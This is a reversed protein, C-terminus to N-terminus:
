RGFQITRPTKPLLLQSYDRLCMSSRAMLSSLVQAILLIQEQYIGIGYTPQLIPELDKHAYKVEELGHKRKIFNSIWEMPGPRYLAVMATIDGFETPKLEKLYRRMGASELQFVGTTDGHQLLAFTKKDNLPINAIDLRKGKTREIIILTTEIVTLNMLGLFDMKLLGLSELPKASYQTIIINEDKPARQVATYQTAPAETIIVGCAHVSVHRAKGELKLAIDMIRRYTENSDYAVKMETTKLADDLKTGPREPILKALENMELFPIGYARGVDKVAARAALTGFTCIQVVHDRGYTGM